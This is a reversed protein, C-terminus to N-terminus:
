SRMEERKQQHILYVEGELEHSTSILASLSVLITWEPGKKGRKINLMINRNNKDLQDTYQDKLHINGTQCIQM